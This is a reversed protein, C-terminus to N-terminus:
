RGDTWSMPRSMLMRAVNMAPPAFMTWRVTLAREMSRAGVSANRRPTGIGCCLWPRTRVSITFPPEPRLSMPMTPSFSKWPWSSGVVTANSPILAETPPAAASPVINM